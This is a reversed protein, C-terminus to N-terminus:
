ESIYPIKVSFRSGREPQSELFIYGGLQEVAKRVIYLGLGNGQSLINGRFFMQFIKEHYDEVIGVGNDEISILLNKQEKRIVIRVYANEPRAFILANEILNLLIARISEKESVFELNEEIEEQWLIDKEEILRQLYSKIEQLLDQFIIKESINKDERMGSLSILKRLMSDMGLVTQNIYNFIEATEASHESMKALELLGLINTLPRRLDHASHYLFTDLEENLASLKANSLYLNQTRQKILRELNENLDHIAVNSAQLEQNQEHIIESQAKIEENQQLIENNLKVLYDNAEQLMRESRKRQLSQYTLSLFTGISVAFFVEDPLWIRSSSNEFCIVGSLKGNMFFPVDLLSNVGMPELYSKSLEYTAPNIRANNAIIINEESLVKFYTPYDKMQLVGEAKGEMSIHKGTRSDFYEICQITGSNEEYTWISVTDSMILSHLSESILPLADMWLGEVIVPHNLLFKLMKIGEEHRQTFSKIRSEAINFNKVQWSIIKRLVGDDNIKTLQNNFYARIDKTAFHFFEQDGNRQQEILGARLAEALSDLEEQKPYLEALISADFKEGILSAIVLLDFCKKSLLKDYNQAYDM